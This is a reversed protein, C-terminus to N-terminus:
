RSNVAAPATVAGAAKKRGGEPRLSGGEHKEDHRGGAAGAFLLGVVSESEDFLKETIRGASRAVESLGGGVDELAGAFSDTGAEGEFESFAQLDGGLLADGEGGGDFKEVVGGEDEIVHLVAVFHATAL